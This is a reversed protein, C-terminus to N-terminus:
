SKGGQRAARALFFASGGRSSRRSASQGLLLRRSASQGLLLLGLVLVAV